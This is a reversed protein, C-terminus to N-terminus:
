QKCIIYTGASNFSVQLVADRASSAIHLRGPEVQWIRGESRYAGRQLVTVVETADSTVGIEIGDQTAVQLLPDAATAVYEHCGPGDVAERDWGSTLDLVAPAFLDYSETGVGTNFMTEARMRDELTVEDDPLEASVEPRQLLLPDLWQNAQDFETTLVQQGARANAAAGLVRGRWEQTIDAYGGAWMRMQTVGFFAYGAALLAGTAAVLWRPEVAVRWLRDLAAALAPTLLVITFYAYRPSSAAEVGIFGRALAELVLQSTAAALGAWAVSRARRPLGQDTILVILVVLFLAPGVEQVGTASGLSRTLGAWVFQPVNDTHWGLGGERGHTLYWLGFALAPVSAVRLALGPGRAVAAFVTALAVASIGTGSFMLAVLLLGWVVALTRRGGGGAMLAVVALLGFLLAGTNNMAADWLINDQGVPVFLVFWAGLVAVWPSLGARRLLAYLTLAIGLHITITVMVYPVYTTMGFAAYLTRVVLIPMTSWHGNHPTLLGNDEGDVTGRHLLFEWDDGWFWARSGLLVLYATYGVSAVILVLASWSSRRAVRTPIPRLRDLTSRAAAATQTM